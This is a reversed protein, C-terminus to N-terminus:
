PSRRLRGPHRQDLVPPTEHDARREAGTRAQGDTMLGVAHRIREIGCGVTSAAALGGCPPQIDRGHEGAIEDSPEVIEARRGGEVARMRSAVVMLAAVASQCRYQSP